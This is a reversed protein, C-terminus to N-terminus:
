RNHFIHKIVKILRDPENKSFYDICGARLAVDKMELGGGSVALIPTNQCCEGSKRLRRSADLGDMVPMNMDMVILDPCERSATEIAEQGNSAEVVQYGCVEFLGRLSARFDDQDDVLLITPSTTRTTSM